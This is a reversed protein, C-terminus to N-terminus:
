TEHAEPLLWVSVVFLYSEDRKFEKKLNEESKLNANRSQLNDFKYLIFSDKQEYHGTM